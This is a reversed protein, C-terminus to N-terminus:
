RRRRCRKSKNKKCKRKTKKCKRKTKKCKRKKRSGGTEPRALVSAVPAPGRPAKEHRIIKNIYEDKKHDRTPASIYQVRGLNAADANDTDEHNYIDTPHVIAGVNPHTSTPKKQTPKKPEYHRKYMEIYDAGETTDEDM